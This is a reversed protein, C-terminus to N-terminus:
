HAHADDGHALRLLLADIDNRDNVDLKAYVEKVHYSATNLTLGLASAIEPNTKGDALLLAVERQQPSLPSNGVGRVLALIRPEERRVLLGAHEETGSAGDLAFM